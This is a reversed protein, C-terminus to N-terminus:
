PRGTSAPLTTPTQCGTGADSAAQIPRLVAVGTRVAEPLPYSRSHPGGEWLRDLEEVTAPFWAEQDLWSRRISLSEINSDWGALTENNSGEIGVADDRSDWFMGVKQHFLQGKPGIIIRTELRGERMLWALVSLHDREIDSKTILSKALRDALEELSKGTAM